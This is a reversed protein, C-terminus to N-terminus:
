SSRTMAFSPSFRDNTLVTSISGVFLLMGSTKIDEYAQPSRLFISLCVSIVKPDWRRRRIDMSQGNKLQAELLFKFNDPVGLSMVMYLINEM